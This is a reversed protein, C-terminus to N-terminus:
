PALVLSTREAESFANLFARLGDYQDPDVISREIRLDVARIARGNEVTWRVTFRGFPSQQERAPPLEDVKVGAPLTLAFRDVELRGDLAVPAVRPGAPLAPPPGGALRPPRVVMVRGPLLQAYSPAAVQMTIGFRDDAFDDDIIAATVRANALDRRIRTELLATYETEPLSARVFREQRAPEGMTSVVVRGLLMGDGNVTAEIERRSQHADLRAPPVRVLPGGGTDVILALSGHLHLPLHGLPTHEDTPDFLLLRGATAHDIVAPLDLDDPAAIAVIAHNFQQPSPWVERVYDPDGAYITVLRAEIGVSALMARMLNAKDKCDGYNKALVEAAARPVYGGGRGIGTQISIYQVGQAYRAIARVRDLFSTGGAILQQTRATVTETAAGRGEALSALWRSVAGWSDFAGARSRGDFYTVALRPVVASFPPAATEASLPPLNDLAWVYSAGSRTPEIPAHNLTLSRAEWAAPVTLTRQVRHVPWQEQLWWDFQTFVTREVIETEAGFVAGAVIRDGASMVRARSENYVDNEVLAVDAIVARGLEESRGDSVIWGRMLRIRAADTSYVERVAAASAGDRNMVRVAYRRRTTTSRGDDSVVVQLDDLLVVADAGEDIAASPTRAAQQLWAPADAAAAVAPALLSTVLAAAAIRGLSM